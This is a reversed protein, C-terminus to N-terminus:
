ELLKSFATYGFLLVLLVAAILNIIEINSVNKM